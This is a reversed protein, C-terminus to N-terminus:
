RTPRSAVGEGRDFARDDQVLFEPIRRGDAPAGADLRPQVPEGAVALRRPGLRAPRDLDELREALRDLEGAGVAAHRLERHERFVALLRQGPPRPREIECVRRSSSLV